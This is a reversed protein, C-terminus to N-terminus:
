KNNKEEMLEAVIGHIMNFNTPFYYEAEIQELIYVVIMNGGRTQNMFKPNEPYRDRLEQLNREYLLEDIYKKYEDVKLYYPVGTKEFFKNSHMKNEAVTHYMLHFGTFIAYKCKTKPLKKFNRKIFDRIDEKKVNTEDEMLQPFEKIIDGTAFEETISEIIKGNEMVIMETSSGGVCCVLYPGDLGKINGVAKAMYLEEKEQTLLNVKVNTENIIEDNLKEFQEKTLLRFISTAYANIEQENSIEQVNKIANILEKIDGSAIGNEKSYNQKFMINKIYISEVDGLNNVKYVKVNGSGIDLIVM